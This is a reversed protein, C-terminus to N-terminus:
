SGAESPQAPEPPLASPPPTSPTTAAQMEVAAPAPPESSAESVAPAAAPAPPSTVAEPRPTPPLTAQPRAESPRVGAPRLVPATPLPHLHVVAPRMMGAPPPTQRASWRNIEELIAPDDPQSLIDVSGDAQLALPIEKSQRLRTSPVHVLRASELSIPPSGATQAARQNPSGGTNLASLARRMPERWLAPLAALPDGSRTWQAQEARAIPPMSPENLDRLTLAGGLLESRSYLRNLLISAGLKRKGPSSVAALTSTFQAPSIALPSVDAPSQASPLSLPPLSGLPAVATAESPQRPQSRFPNLVLGTTEGKGLPQGPLQLGPTQAAPGPAQLSHNQLSSLARNSYFSQSQTLPKEQPSAAIFVPLWVTQSLVAWAISQRNIDGSTPPLLNM